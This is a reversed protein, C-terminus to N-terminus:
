EVKRFGQFDALGENCNRCLHPKVISIDNRGSISRYRPKGSELKEMCEDKEKESILSDTFM